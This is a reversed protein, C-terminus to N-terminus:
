NRIPVIRNYPAFKMMRTLVRTIPVLTGGVRKTRYAKMALSLKDLVILKLNLGAARNHGTKGDAISYTWFAKMNHVM